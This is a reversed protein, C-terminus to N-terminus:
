KTATQAIGKGGHQLVDLKCRHSPVTWKEPNVLSEFLTRLIKLQLDRFANLRKLMKPSSLRPQLDKVGSSAHDKWTWFHRLDLRWQPSCVKEVEMWDAKWFPGPEPSGFAWARLRRLVGLWSPQCPRGIQLAIAIHCKSMSLRQGLFEANPYLILALKNPGEVSSAPTTAM